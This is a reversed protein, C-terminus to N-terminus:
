LGPNRGNGTAEQADEPMWGTKACRNGPQQHLCEGREGMM